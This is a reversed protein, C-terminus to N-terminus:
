VKSNTIASPNIKIAGSGIELVFGVTLLFLFFIFISFGYTGIQYLTVAAPMLLVVELDFVLFLLAVLFFHIQFNDRTQGLISRFGCEYASVKEADPKHVALVVNLLLLILSLIPVFFLLIVFNNM